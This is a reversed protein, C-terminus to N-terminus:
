QPQQATAPAAPQREMHMQEFACGAEFHIDKKSVRCVKVNGVLDGRAGGGGVLRVYIVEGRNLEDDMRVQCGGQSIDTVRAASLIESGRRQYFTLMDCKYRRHRRRNAGKDAQRSMFQFGIEFSGDENKTVRRVEAQSQLMRTMAPPLPMNWDFQVVQGKQLSMATNIHLGGQSYDKVTGQHRTDDRAMTFYVSLEVKRRTHGRSRGLREATTKLNRLSELLKRANELPDVALSVDISPRDAAALAAEDVAINGPQITEIDVGKELCVRCVTVWRNESNRVLELQSPDDYNKACSSCKAM